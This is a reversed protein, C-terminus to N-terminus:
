KRGSREVIKSEDVGGGGEGGSEANVGVREITGARSEGM